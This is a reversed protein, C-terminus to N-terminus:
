IESEIYKKGYFKKYNRKFNKIAQNLGKTSKATVGPNYPDLNESVVCLNNTGGKYHIFDYIM